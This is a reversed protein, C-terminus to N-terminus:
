QRNIRAILMLTTGIGLVFMLLSTFLSSSNTGLSLCLLAGAFAGAIALFMSSVLTMSHGRLWIGALMGLLAGDLCWIFIGDM